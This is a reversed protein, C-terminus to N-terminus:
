FPPEEEHAKFVREVTNLLMDSEFAEQASSAMSIFRQEVAVLRRFEYPLLDDLNKKDMVICRMQPDRQLAEFIMANIHTDGFSYGVVVLINSANLTQQFRYLLTLFPDVAQLKVDTGFILLPEFDSPLEESERAPPWKVRCIGFKEDHLWDLSGHLKYVYAEYKSGLLQPNWGNEDFGTTWRDNIPGLADSLAREICEDYNLTFIRLNYGRRIFDLFSRLYKLKAPNKIALWERLESKCYDRLFQFSDTARDSQIGDPLRQLQYIREHWASVFPYVFHKDRDVLFSCATLLEEINIKTIPPEGRCAKGFQIAGSIFRLVPLLAPYKEAIAEEVLDTLGTATPLGADVTAGAGLLFVTDRNEAM